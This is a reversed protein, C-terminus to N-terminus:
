IYQGLVTISAECTSSGVDNSVEFSYEGSNSKETALIKLMSSKDTSHVKYKQDSILEKGDKLWKAKLVKTGSFRCELTAPDGATVSISKARETINAPETGLM